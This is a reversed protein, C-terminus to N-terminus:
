YGGFSVTFTGTADCQIIQLENEDAGNNSSDTMFYQVEDVDDIVTTVTQVESEFPCELKVAQIEDILDATDWEIMYADIVPGGNSVLPTITVEISSGDVAQLEVAMPRDPSHPLPIEYPPTSFKASGFGVANEATVQFFYPIGQWLGSVYLSLDNLDIITASGLSLGNEPDLSNFPPSIGKVTETVTAIPISGTM